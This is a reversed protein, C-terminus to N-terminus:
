HVVLSRPVAFREQLRSEWKVWLKALDCSLHSDWAGKTDCVTRYVLKGSLTEPLVLGLPGYIKALKALIGRKTLMAKEPPVTISLSDQEKNWPLGLMSSFTGQPVGLQQTTYTPEGEEKPSQESELEPVNSHWKHLNFCADQFIEKTKDKLERTKCVTTSGSILDDIYLEKRINAVLEPEREEWNNFHMEIVGGLQFPSPAPGFLARTFRLTELPSQKDRHWHLYMADRDIEKVRVQLFAKQLDGTIAVPNLHGRALVSWLKNQLPPGTNLCDNLSPASNFARASADYVIRLKTSVATARM